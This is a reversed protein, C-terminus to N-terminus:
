DEDMAEDLLDDGEEQHILRAGMEDQVDEFIQRSLEQDVAFDEGFERIRLVSIDDDSPGHRGDEYQIENGDDNFTPRRVTARVSREILDRAADWADHTHSWAQSEPSLSDYLANRRLIKIAECAVKTVRDIEAQFYIEVADMDESSFKPRPASNCPM